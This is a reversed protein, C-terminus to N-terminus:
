AGRRSLTDLQRQMAAMQRRLEEIAEDGAPRKPAQRDAETPEAADPEEGDRPASRQTFPNFMRMAQEFMAMNQKSVEELSGFPFVGLSSQFQKRMQEQNRAFWAAMTELYQPVMWRMSDGYLAILQRLFSIPLLNHGKQEEEVIIQTLVARTLDDKTKADQVVFETGEQVMRALDELTVYASSATNYLRRNAYKKVIVPAKNTKEAMPKAPRTELHLSGLM